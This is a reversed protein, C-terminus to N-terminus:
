KGAQIFTVSSGPTTAAPSVTFIARVYRVPYAYNSQANTTASVLTAHNFVTPTSTTNVDSPTDQVTVSGTGTIVAIAMNFPDQFTDNTVWRTSGSAGIGVTFASSAISTAYLYNLQAFEFLGTAFADTATSSGGSAGAFSATVVRGNTDIGSALFITGTLNGTSFVGITRQVGGPMLAVSQSPDTTGQIQKAYSGNLVVYAGTATTWSQTAAVVNTQFSAFSFSVPRM